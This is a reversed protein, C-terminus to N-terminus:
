IFAIRYVKYTRYSIMWSNSDVTLSSNSFRAVDTLITRFLSWWNKVRGDNYLCYLFSSFM